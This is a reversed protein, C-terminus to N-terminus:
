ESLAMVALARVVASHGALTAQQQLAGGAGGNSLVRLTSDNCGALLQLAGGPAPAAALSYVNVGELQLAAGDPTLANAGDDWKWLQVSGGFSGTGAGGGPQACAAGILGGAAAEAEHADAPVVVALCAGTAMSWVRLSGDYSGSLLRRGGLYALCMVSETHWSMVATCTRADVDWLRVSNDFCCSALQRQHQATGGGVVALSNVPDTHGQLVSAAGGGGRLSWVRIEGGDHGTAVRDGWLTAACCIFGEGTPTQQLQKGSLVDWVLLM